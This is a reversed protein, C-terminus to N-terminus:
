SELVLGLLYEEKTSEVADGADKVWPWAMHFTRSTKRGMEVERHFEVKLRRNGKFATSDPKGSTVKGVAGSKIKIYKPINKNLQTM